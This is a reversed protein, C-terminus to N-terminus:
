GLGEKNRADVDKHWAKLEEAIARKRDKFGNRAIDRLKKPGLKCGGKFQKGPMDALLISGHDAKNQFREQKIEDLDDQHFYVDVKAQFGNLQELRRTVARTVVERLEVDTKNGLDPCLRLLNYRNLQGIRVALQKNGQARLFLASETIYQEPDTILIM